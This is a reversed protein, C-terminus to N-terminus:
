NSDHMVPSLIVKKARVYADWADPHIGDEDSAWKEMSETLDRLLKIIFIRENVASYKPCNPHHENTDWLIEMAWNICECNTIMKLREVEVM